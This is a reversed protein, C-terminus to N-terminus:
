EVPCVYKLVLVLAMELLLCSGLADVADNLQLMQRTLPPTGEEQGEEAPPSSAIM